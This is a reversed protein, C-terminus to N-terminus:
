WVKKAAWGLMILGAVGLGGAILRNRHPDGEANPITMVDSRAAINIEEQTERFVWASGLLACVGGGVLAGTGTARKFSGGFAGVGLGAATFLAAYLAKRGVPAFDGSEAPVVEGRLGIMRM